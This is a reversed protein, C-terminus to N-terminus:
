LVEWESLFVYVALFRGMSYIVLGRQFTRYSKGYFRLSIVVCSSPSVVRCSVVGSM